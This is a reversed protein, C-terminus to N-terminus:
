ECTHAAALVASIAIQKGLTPTSAQTVAANALAVHEDSAPKGMLCSLADKTFAGTTDFLAVPAGATTQCGSPAWGTAVIEAAASAFIDMQSVMGSTSAFSAEPVRAPYNAEGLATVNLKYLAGSSGTTTSAMNVGRSTLFQKLEAVSIKGCTHLRALTDPSGATEDDTRVQAPDTVPFSVTQDAGNPDQNHGQGNAGAGPDTSSYGSVESGGNSLSDTNGNNCGVIALAAAGVLTFAFRKM